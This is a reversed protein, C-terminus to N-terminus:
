AHSEAAAYPIDDTIRYCSQKGIDVAMGVVQRVKGGLEHRPKEMGWAMLLVEFKV